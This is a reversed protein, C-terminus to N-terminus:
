QATWQGVANTTLSLRNAFTHDEIHILVDDRFHELFQEHDQHSQRMLGKEKYGKADYLIELFSLSLDISIIAYRYEGIMHKFKRWTRDISAGYIWSVNRNILNQIRENRKAEYVHQDFVGLDEQVETRIVDNDLIPLCYATSLAHAIPTKSSGAPGAFLIIFPMNQQM